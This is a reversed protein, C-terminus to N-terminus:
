FHDLYLNERLLTSPKELNKFTFNEAAPAILFHQSSTAEGPGPNIGGDFITDMGHCKRLEAIIRAIDLELIIVRTDVKM